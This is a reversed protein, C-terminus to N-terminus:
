ASLNDQDTPGPMSLYSSFGNFDFDFFCRYLYIAGTEANRFCTGNYKM